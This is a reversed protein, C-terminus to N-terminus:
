LGRARACCGIATKLPNIPECDLRFHVTRLPKDPLPSRVPPRMPRAGDLLTGSGFCIHAGVNSDLACLVEQEM